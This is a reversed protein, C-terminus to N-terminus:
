CSVNGQAKLEVKNLKQAFRLSCSSESFHEALPNCCIIALTKSNGGLSDKLLYTLKSERFPVHESKAQLKEIVNSLTSLSLNIHQAEKLSAGVSQSKNLRESGALDCIHLKSKRNLGDKDYVEFNLTFILHSRSSEENSKTAKVCRREQALVLVRAVEDANSADCVKNGVAENSNPSINLNKFGRGDKTKTLLDRVQENYIELLEVSINVDLKGNSTVELMNKSDFLKKVSRTILGPNEKTGLMTYTKGSGTQGYSFVCVNFGDVASQILPETAAWVDEQNHDPSFVNDFGYKLVKRRQSLGGRDKVPETCIVFRKTLDDEMKVSSKSSGKDFISPFSFPTAIDKSAANAENEITPRVRVFVRINGTLQIVRDHLRRRIEDQMHIKYLLDAERLDFTSLKEQISQYRLNSETLECTKAQIEADKLSLETSLKKKENVIEARLAELEKRLSDIENLANDRESKVKKIELTSEHLQLSMKAEIDQVHTRANEENHLQSRLREIELAMEEKEATVKDLLAQIDDTEKAVSDLEQELELVNKEATELSVQLKGNAEELNKNLTKTSSLEQTLTDNKRELDSCVKKSQEVERNLSEMKTKLEFSNEQNQLMQKLETELQIMREKNTADHGASKEKHLAGIVKEFLQDLRQKLDVNDDGKEELARDRESELKAVTVLLRSKEQEFKSRQSELRKELKEIKGLNEENSKEFYHKECKLSQIKDELKEIREKLALLLKTQEVENSVTLSHNDVVGPSFDLCFQNNRTKSSSPSLYYVDGQQRRESNLREARESEKKLENKRIEEPNPPSFEMQFLGKKVSNKEGESVNPSDNNPMMSNRKNASRTQRPSIGREEAVKWYPTPRPVDELMFSKSPTVNEKDQLENTPSQLEDTKREKRSKVAPSRETVTRKKSKPLTSVAAQISASSSRRARPM